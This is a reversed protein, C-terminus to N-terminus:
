FNVILVGTCRWQRQEPANETLKSCIECMTKTSASNVKFFYIDAPNKNTFM